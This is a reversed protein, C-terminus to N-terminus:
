SKWIMTPLSGQGLSGSENVNTKSSEELASEKVASNSDTNDVTGGSGRARSPHSVEGPRSRSTKSRASVPPLPRVNVFRPLVTRGIEPPKRIHLRDEPLLERDFSWSEVRSSASRQSLRDVSVHQRTLEEARKQDITHSRPAEHHKVHLQQPEVEDAHILRRGPRGVSWRERGAGGRFSLGDGTVATPPRVKRRKGFVGVAEPLSMYTNTEVSSSKHNVPLADNEGAQGGTTLRLSSKPSARVTKNAEKASKKKNTSKAEKKTVRSFETASNRTVRSTVKAMGLRQRLLASSRHWVEAEIQERRWFSTDVRAGAHSSADRTSRPPPPLEVASASPELNVIDAAMPITTRLVPPLRESQGGGEKLGRPQAHMNAISRVILSSSTVPHRRALRMMDTGRLTPLLDRVSQRRHGSGDPVCMGMPLSEGTVDYHLAFGDVLLKPTFRHGAYNRLYRGRKGLQHRKRRLKRREWASLISGLQSLYIVSSARIRATSIACSFRRSMRESHHHRVDSSEFAVLLTNVWSHGSGSSSTSAGDEDGEPGPSAAALPREVHSANKLRTQEALALQAMMLTNLQSNITNRIEEKDQMEEISTRRVLMSSFRRARFSSSNRRRPKNSSVGTLEDGNETSRVASIQGEVRLTMQFLGQDVATLNRRALLHEHQSSEARQKFIHDERGGRHGAHTRRQRRLGRAEERQKRLREMRIEKFMDEVRKKWEIYRLEEDEDRQQRTGPSLPEDSSDVQKFDDTHDDDDDDAQIFRTLAPRDSIDPMPKRLRSEDVARSILRDTGSDWKAVEGLVTPAPGKHRTAREQQRAETLIASLADELSTRGAEEVSGSSGLGEEKGEVTSDTAQNGMLIERLRRWESRLVGAVLQSRPDHATSKRELIRMLEEIVLLRTKPAFEKLRDRLVPFEKRLEEESGKQMEVILDGLQNIELGLREAAAVLIENVSSRRRKRLRKDPGSSASTGLVSFSGPEESSQVTQRESKKDAVDPEGAAETALASSPLALPVGSVVADQIDEFTDASVDEAQPGEVIEERIARASAVRQRWFNGLRAVTSARETLMGHEETLDEPESVAGGRGRAGAMRVAAVVARGGRKLKELPSRGRGGRPTSPATFSGWRSVTARSSRGATSPRGRSLQLKPILVKSRRPASRDMIRRYLDHLAFSAIENPELDIEDSFMSPDELLGNIEEELDGLQDLLMSNVDGVQLIRGQLDEYKMFLREQEEREEQEPDPLLEAAAADQGLLERVTTQYSPYAGYFRDVKAPLHRLAERVETVQEEWRHEPTQGLMDAASRLWEVGGMVERHAYSAEKISTKHHPQLPIDDPVGPERSLYTQVKNSLVIGKRHVMAALTDFRRVAEELKSQRTAREVTAEKYALWVEYPVVHRRREVPKRCSSSSSSPSGDLQQLLPSNPDLEALRRKADEVRAALLGQDHSFRRSRRRPVGFESGIQEQVRQELIERTHAIKEELAEKRALLRKDKRSAAGELTSAGEDSDSADSDTSSYMAALNGTRSEEKRLASLEVQRDAAVKTEDVLNQFAEKLNLGNDRSVSARSKELLLSAAADVLDRQPWYLTYALKLDRESTGMSSMNELVAVYEDFNSTYSEVIRGLRVKAYATERATADGSLSTGAGIRKADLWSEQSNQLGQRRTDKKRVGPEYGMSELCATAAKMVVKAQEQITSFYHLLEVVDQSPPRKVEVVLPAQADEYSPGAANEPLSVLPEVIINRIGYSVESDCGDEESDAFRELIDHVIDRNNPDSASHVTRNSTTWPCEDTGWLLAEAFVRDPEDGHLLRTLLSMTFESRAITGASRTAKSRVLRPSTHALLSRSVKTSSLMCTPGVWGSALRTSTSPGSRGFLAPKRSCIYGQTERMSSLTVLRHPHAGDSFM